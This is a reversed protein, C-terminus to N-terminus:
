CVEVEKTVCDFEKHALECCIPPNVKILTKPQKTKAEVNDEWRVLNAGLARIQANKPYGTLMFPYKHDGFVDSKQKYPHQTEHLYRERGCIGQNEQQPLDMGQDQKAQGLYSEHYSKMKQEDM